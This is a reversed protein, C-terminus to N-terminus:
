ILHITKNFKNSVLICRGNHCTYEDPGCTLPHEPNMNGCDNEDEGGDCDQEKDCKWRKPICTGDACKYESSMCQSPKQQCNEEDSWDGCDNDGDCRFRNLICQGSPGGAGGLGGRCKFEGEPCSNIVAPCKHEDSNDDCDREGDCRFALSICYGDNCTFHESTCSSRNCHVEDSFDKCDNEGDCLWQRPICFGNQCEFQDETCNTRAGCHTEDSYDGCDDDGDCLWDKNICRYTKPCMVHLGSQECEKQLKSMMDDMNDCDIEDSGDTCQVERNCRGPAEICQCNTCQWQLDDCINHCGGTTTSGYGDGGQGLQRPDDHVVVRNAFPRFGKQKNSAAGLFGDRGRSSAQRDSERVVYMDGRGGQAGVNRFKPTDGSSTTGVGAGAGVSPKLPIMPDMTFVHGYLKDGEQVNDEHHHELDHDHDHDQDHDFEHGHHPPYDSATLYDHDDEKHILEDSLDDGHVGHGRQGNNGNGNVPRAHGQQYWNEQPREQQTSEAGAEAGVGTGAAAATREHQDGYGLSLDCFVLVLQLFIFYSTPYTITLSM